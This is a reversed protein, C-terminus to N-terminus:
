CPAAEVIPITATRHVAVARMGAAALLEGTEDPTRLRGGTFALLFLDELASDDPQEAPWRMPEVVLLRAAGPMRARVTRLLGAAGADPLACLTRVLLHVEPGRDPCHVTRVARILGAAGGADILDGLGAWPYGALVGDIEARSATAYSALPYPEGHVRPWAPAGTRMTEHYGAWAYLEAPRLMLAERVSHPHDARLLEAPPTLAFSGPRVETFIGNCALARLARLLASPDAGVAHALDEVPRPGDGLHDAVGLEAVARVTHPVIYDTLDILRLMAAVDVRARTRM